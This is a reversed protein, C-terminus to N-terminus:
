LKGSLRSNLTLASSPFFTNCFHIQPLSITPIKCNPFRAYQLICFYSNMSEGFSSGCLSRHSPVIATLNSWLGYEVLSLPIRLQSYFWRDKSSKPILLQHFCKPQNRVNANTRNPRSPLRTLSSSCLILLPPLHALCRLTM